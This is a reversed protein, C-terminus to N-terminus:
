LLWQSPSRKPIISLASFSPRTRKSELNASASAPKIEVHILRPKLLNVANGPALVFRAVAVCISFTPSISIAPFCRNMCPQRPLRRDNGPCKVRSNAAKASDPVCSFPDQLNDLLDGKGLGPSRRVPRSPENLEPQLGAIKLKTIAQRGQRPPSIAM